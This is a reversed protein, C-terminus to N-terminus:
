EPFFGKLEKGEKVEAAYQLRTMIHRKFQEIVAVVIFENSKGDDMGFKEVADAKAKDVDKRVIAYVERPDTTFQWCAIFKSEDDWAVEQQKEQPKQLELFMEYLPSKLKQLCIWDAAVFPRVSFPGVQIPGKMIEATTGPLPTAAARGNAMQEMEADALKDAGILKPIDNVSYEPM